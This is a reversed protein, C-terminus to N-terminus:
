AKRIRVLGMKALWLLSRARLALAERPWDQALQAVTRSGGKLTELLRHTDAAPPNVARAFAISAHSSVSDFMAPTADPALAIVDDPALTSTAYGAFARYPDARTPQVPQGAQRPVSEAASRRREALETWLQQYREIVVRWDFKAV